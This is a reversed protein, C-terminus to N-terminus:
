STRRGPTTKRRRGVRTRGEKARRFADLLEDVHRAVENPRRPRQPRTLPTQV